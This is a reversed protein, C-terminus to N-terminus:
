IIFNMIRERQRHIDMTIFELVEATLYVQCQLIELRNPCEECVTYDELSRGFHMKMCDKQTENIGEGRKKMSGFNRSTAM